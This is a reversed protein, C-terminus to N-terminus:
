DDLYEQYANEEDESGVPPVTCAPDKPGYDGFRQVRVPTVGRKVLRELEDDDDDDKVIYEIATPKFAHFIAPKKVEGSGDCKECIAYTPQLRRADVVPGRGTSECDPCKVEVVERHAVFVWTKGLEFDNPVTQIRRSVGQERSENMWHGPTPYFKGGIWLLGARGMERLSLPGVTCRECTRQWEDKRHTDLIANKGFLAEPRCSVGSFLARPDIWTWGRTPKIGASCTPCVGLVLPLRGCPKGVGDCRLYLGGPKRWGCGRERDVVTQIQM